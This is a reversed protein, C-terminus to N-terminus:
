SDHRSLWATLECLDKFVYDPQIPSSELDSLRTEGTLMLVSPIQSNRALAIDTPIYDGVMALSAVPLDLKAAATEAMLASPKGIV